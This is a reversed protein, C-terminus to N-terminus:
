RLPGLKTAQHSLIVTDSETLWRNPQQHCSKLIECALPETM